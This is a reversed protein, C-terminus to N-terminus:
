VGFVEEYLYTSIVGAQSDNLYSLLDVSFNRGEAAFDYLLQGSRHVILGSNGSHMLRDLPVSAQQQATPVVPDGSQTPMALTPSVSESM